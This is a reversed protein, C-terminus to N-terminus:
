GEEYENKGQDRKKKLRGQKTMQYQERVKVVKMTKKMLILKKTSDGEVSEESVEM